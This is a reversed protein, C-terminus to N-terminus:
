RSSHIINEANVCDHRPHRGQNSIAAENSHNAAPTTPDFKKVIL